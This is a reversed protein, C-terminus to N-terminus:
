HHYLNLPFTTTNSHGNSSLRNPCLIIQFFFKSYSELMQFDHKMKEQMRNTERSLKRFSLLIEKTYTLIEFGKAQMEWEFFKQFM